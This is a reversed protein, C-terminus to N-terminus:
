ITKIIDKYEKNKNNKIGIMAILEVLEWNISGPVNLLSLDFINDIIESPLGPFKNVTNPWYLLYKSFIYDVITYCLYASFSSSVWCLSALFFLTRIRSQNKM